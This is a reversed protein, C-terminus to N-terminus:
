ARDRYGNSGGADATILLRIADPNRAQGHAVVVVPPHVSQSPSPTATSTTTMAPGAGAAKSPCRAPDGDIESGQAVVRDRHRASDGTGPLVVREGEIALGDLRVALEAVDRVYRELAAMGADTPAYVRRAPGQSGELSSRVFEAAEFKRLEQYIPGPGGWDFGFAKLPEILQYGHRPAEALLQLVCAGLFGSPAASKM